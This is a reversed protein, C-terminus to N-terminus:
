PRSSGPWARCASRTQTEENISLSTDWGWYIFLMLLLGSM